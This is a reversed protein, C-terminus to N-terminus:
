HDKYRESKLSAIKETLTAGYKRTCFYFKIKM